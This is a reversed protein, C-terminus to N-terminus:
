EQVMGADNVERLNECTELQSKLMSLEDEQRIIARRITDCAMKLGDINAVTIEEAALSLYEARMYEFKDLIDLYAKRMGKDYSLRDNLTKVGHIISGHDRGGVFVGIDEYSLTNVLIDAGVKGGVEHKLIKYLFFRAESVDAPRREGLIASTSVGTSESVAELAVEMLAVRHDRGTDLIPLVRGSLSDDKGNIDIGRTM